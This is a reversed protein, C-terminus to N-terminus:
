DTTARIARINSVCMQRTLRIPAARLMAIAKVVAKMVIVAAALAMSVASTAPRAPKKIPAAREAAHGRHSGAVNTLPDRRVEDGSSFRTLDDVPEVVKDVCGARRGTLALKGNSASGNSAGECGELLVNRV